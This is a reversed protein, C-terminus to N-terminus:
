GIVRGEFKGDTIRFRKVRGSNDCDLIEGTYEGPPILEHRDGVSDEYHYKWTSFQDAIYAAMMIVAGITIGYGLHGEWHCGLLAIVAQLAGIWIFHRERLWNM